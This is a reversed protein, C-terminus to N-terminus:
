WCDTGRGLLSQTAMVNNFTDVGIRSAPAAVQAVRLVRLPPPGLLAEGRGGLPTKAVKPNGTLAEFAAKTLMSYSYGFLHAFWPTEPQAFTCPNGVAYLSLMQPRKPAQLDGAGM